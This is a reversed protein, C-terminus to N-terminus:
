EAVITNELEGLGEVTLKVTDGPRLFVGAFAGVGACTGSAIMDGPKLAIQSSLNSILEACSFVM